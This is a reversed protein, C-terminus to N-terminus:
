IDRFIEEGKTRIPKEKGFVMKQRFSRVKELFIVRETEEIRNEKVLSRSM